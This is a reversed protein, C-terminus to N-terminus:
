SAYGEREDIGAARLRKRLTEKARHYYSKSTGTSIHLTEGIEEHTFGESAYLLFVARQLEPLTRLQTELHHALMVDGSADASSPHRAEHLFDLPEVDRHTRRQKTICANLLIRYLWTSIKATGEFSGISRFAAIFAEQLSDEADARNGHFRWALSFLYSKYVHYLEEFAPMQGRKCRAILDASVLPPGPRAAHTDMSM